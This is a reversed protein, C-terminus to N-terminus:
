PSALHLGSELHVGTSHQQECVPPHHQLAAHVPRQSRERFRNRQASIREKQGAQERGQEASRDPEAPGAASAQGEPKQVLGLIFSCFIILFYIHLVYSINNCQDM